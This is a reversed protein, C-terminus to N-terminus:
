QLKVLQGNEVGFVPGDKCVHLYTQTIKNDGIEGCACGLCAGVGCAMREELSIEIPIKKEEALKVAAKLMVKPGCAFIVDFNGGGIFKQANFVANGAYGYSRDDTCIMTTCGTNKFFGELIVAEANRFGLVATSAEGYKEAISLMPPSGIGGGILLPKKYKEVSFGKGLPGLIDLMEGTNKEAIIRTGDGRIEFVISVTDTGIQAVSIPRRLFKGDAKINLFQGPRTQASLEASDLTFLVTTKNLWQKQNIKIEKQLM